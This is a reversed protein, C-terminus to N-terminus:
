TQRVQDAAFQLTRNSFHRGCGISSLTSNSVVSSVFQPRCCSKYCFFGPDSAESQRIATPRSQSYHIRAAQSSISSASQDTKIWPRPLVRQATNGYRGAPGGVCMSARNSRPFPVQREVVKNVCSYNSQSPRSGYLEFAFKKDTLRVPRVVGTPLQGNTPSGTSSAYSNTSGM